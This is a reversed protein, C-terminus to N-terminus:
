PLNLSFGIGQGHNKIVQLFSIPLFISVEPVEVSPCVLSSAGQLLYTVLCLAIQRFVFNGAM